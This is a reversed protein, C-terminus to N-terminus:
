DRSALWSGRLTTHTVRETELASSGDSCPRLNYPGNLKVTVWGTRLSVYEVTGTVPGGLGVDHWEVTQGSHLDSIECM